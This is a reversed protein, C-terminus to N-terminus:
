RVGAWENVVDQVRCIYCEDILTCWIRVIIAVRPWEIVTGGAGWSVV